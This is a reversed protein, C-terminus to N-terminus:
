WWSSYYVEYGRTIADYSKHIFDLDDETREADVNNDGFFFGTTSPLTGDAIVRELQTLDERDLKVNVCNFEPSEGGKEYYLERMWGQLNPHKRWYHLEEKDVVLDYEETEENYKETSFDVDQEVLGKKIKYAFQDLGM